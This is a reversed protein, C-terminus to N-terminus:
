KPLRKVAGSPTTFWVSTEDVAIATIGACQDLLLVTTKGGTKPARLIACGIRAAWYLDTADVAMAGASENAAITRQAGTDLPAGIIASTSGNLVSTYFGADDMALGIVSEGTPAL